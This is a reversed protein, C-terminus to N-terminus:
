AWSRRPAPQPVLYRMMRHEPCAAGTGHQQVAAHLGSQRALLQLVKCCGCFRAFFDARVRVRGFIPHKACGTSPSMRPLQELVPSPLTPLASFQPNESTPVLNSMRTVLIVGPCILLSHPPTGSVMARQLANEPSKKTTTILFDQRRGGCMRLAAPCAGRSRRGLM